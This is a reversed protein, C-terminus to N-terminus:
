RNVLSVDSIATYNRSAPGKGPASVADLRLTVTTTTVDVDQSQVETSDGLDQQVTSGDDFVWTVSKIRRNGRYWDITGGKAGTGTKAYGNILGVSTLHAEAPLTLVVEKGTGDGPMRWATAPDGDLMNKGDYTTPNGEADQGPPAVAPVEVRAESAVEGSPLPTARQSPQKGGGSGNSERGSSGQGPSGQGPSGQTDDGDGSLLAVGLVIVLIMVAAAGVLWPWWPQRRRASRDRDPDAARLPLLDTGDEYGPGVDDVEDVGDVEDAFLPFRAPPPPAYPPPPPTAPPPTAPPPTSPPPAAPPPTTPVAAREATDTRWQDASPGASQDVPQGCNVCYRGVGLEHGCNACHSM